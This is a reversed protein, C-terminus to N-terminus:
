QAASNSRNALIRRSYGFRLQYMKTNLEQGIAGNRAQRYYTFDFRSHDNIALFAGAHFNWGEVPDWKTEAMLSWGQRGATCMAAASFMLRGQYLILNSRASWREFSNWDACIRLDLPVERGLSLGQEATTEFEANVSIGLNKKQPLANWKLGVRAQEPTGLSQAWQAGARLEIREKWGYRILGIPVAYSYDPVQADGVTQWQAYGGAEIQAAGPPIVGSSISEMPRDALDSAGDFDFQAFGSATCALALLLWTYGSLVLSM